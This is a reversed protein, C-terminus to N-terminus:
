LLYDSERQINSWQAIKFDKRGKGKPVVNLCVSLFTRSHTHRRSECQYSIDFESEPPRTGPGCWKNYYLGLRNGRTPGLSGSGAQVQGAKGLMGTHTIFNREFQQPTHFAMLRSMEVFNWTDTWQAEMLHGFFFFFIKAYEPPNELSHDGRRQSKEERARPESQIIDYM